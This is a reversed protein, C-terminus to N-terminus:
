WRFHSFAKNAEANRHSTEKRGVAGGTNNIADLMEATLKEEFSHHQKNPRRNAEEVLWRLALAFGRRPKLPMPVQYAAGGVRRSRVEMEPTINAIAEDFVELPKKKTEKAVQDLTRYVITAAISKKGDVMVYNIFKAIRVSGYRGDAKITRLPAKKSRM